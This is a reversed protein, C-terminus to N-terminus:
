GRTKNLHIVQVFFDGLVVPTNLLQDGDDDTPVSLNTLVNLNSPYIQRFGPLIQGPASDVQALSNSFSISSMPIDQDPTTQLLDAMGQYCAGQQLQARKMPSELGTESGTDPKRKPFCPSSRSSTSQTTSNSDTSNTRSKNQYKKTGSCEFEEKYMECYPCNNIHPKM